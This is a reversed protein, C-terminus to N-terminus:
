CGRREARARGKAMIQQLRRGAVPIWVTNCAEGKQTTTKGRHAERLVCLL